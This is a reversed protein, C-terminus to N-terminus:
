HILLVLKVDLKRKGEKELTEVPTQITVVNYKM